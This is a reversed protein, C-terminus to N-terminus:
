PVRLVLKGFFDRGEIVEHAKGAEALEFTLDTATFSNRQAGRSSL